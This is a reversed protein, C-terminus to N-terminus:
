RLPVLLGSEKDIITHDEETVEDIPCHIRPKDRVDLGAEQLIFPPVLNDNISEVYLFNKEIFM